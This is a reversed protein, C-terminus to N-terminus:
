THNKTDQQTQQSTKKQNANQSASNFTQLHPKQFTSSTPQIRSNNGNNHYCCLALLRAVAPAKPLATVRKSSLLTRQSFPFLLFYIIFHISSSSTAIGNKEFCLKKSYSTTTNAGQFVFAGDCLATLASLIVDLSLGRSNIKHNINESTTL